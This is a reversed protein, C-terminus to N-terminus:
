GPLVVQDGAALGAVIQTYQDGRLGITVSRRTDRGAARIIVTGSGNAAGSVAASPLYLADEVSATTVLVTASQGLLLGAPPTDFVVVVGYRVLRNTVSGAPDIQSVKGSVPQDRDPVTIAAVQGVALRGVDAESFQATVALSAVDGLVIFGTGGPSASSGVTGAVSLVRGTMPARLVTGALRTRARVLALNANNLQQEASLIPDAGGARGPETCSSAPSATPRATPCPPRSATQEARQWADTADAVRGAAATMDAEAPAPDIRALVRGATVLDGPKVDVETVTGAIAFSLGRTQAAGVTGAASVAQSVTGRKVTATTAAAAPPAGASNALLVGVVTALALPALLAWAATRSPRPLRM